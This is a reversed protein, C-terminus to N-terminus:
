TPMLSEAESNMIWDYCGTKFFFSSFASKLITKKLVLKRSFLPAHSCPCWQQCIWRGASSTEGAVLAKRARNDCNTVTLERLITVIM